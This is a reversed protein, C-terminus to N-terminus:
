RKAKDTTDREVVRSQFILPALHFIILWDSQQMKVSTPIRQRLVVAAALVTCTRGAGLALILFPTGGRSSFCSTSHTYRGAGKRHGRAGAAWPRCPTHVACAHGSAQKRATLLYNRMCPINQMGATPLHPSTQAHQLTTHSCVHLQWGSIQLM